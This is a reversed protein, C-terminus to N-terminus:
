KPHFRYGRGPAAVIHKPNSADPEIKERLRRVLQALSDDRIGKVFAKDESWVAKILDDKECIVGPHAMFYQLLLNEKATLGATDFGGAAPRKSLLPHAHLDSRRLDDPSPADAWFEEVRQTVAEHTSLSEPACGDAAAECMARLLSPYGGSQQLIADVLRADWVLDRQRTYREINWRADPASLPGLWITNAYFLEALESEKPLPRRTFPVLTLQGKFQDRLARLNNQIARGHEGVPAHIPLTDFRDLLLAVRGHARLADRVADDITAASTSLAGRIHTQLADATPHNLRNCDILVLATKGSHVRQSVFGAMNSKGAGSLGIVAASDGAEIARLLRKVEKDRYDAPYDQWSTSM